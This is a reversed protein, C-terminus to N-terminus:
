ERGGSTPPPGDQAAKRAAEKLIGTAQDTHNYHEDVMKMSKHGLLASVVPVPLGSTLANTTYTHRLAYATLGALDPITKRREPDAEEERLRTVKERLRKFRCRVGNLTWPRRVGDLRRTSRFLPGDPHLEVLTRTLEQMAASLYVVRAEGTRDTKHEGFTWRACDRSVNAATVRLVESPRCGTDLMAFVFQRFHEDRITGYVYDREEPTLVRNRRKKPPKKVAKLPNETLLGADSVAWNFMRKVAIVANRRSGKWGAHEDLWKTFSLPPFAAAAATGFRRVFPVVFYSYFEYTKAGNNRKSQDLFEQAVEAVTLRNRQPAPLQEGQDLLWQRYARDAEEKTKGLRKQVGRAVQLYWAKKSRRYWPKPLSM